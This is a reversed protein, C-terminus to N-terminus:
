TRLHQRVAEIVEDYNAFPKVLYGVAGADLAKRTQGKESDSTVMIVPIHKLKGSGLYTFTVM